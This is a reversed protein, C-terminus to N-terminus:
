KCLSHVIQFNILPKFHLKGTSPSFPFPPFPHHNPSQSPLTTLSHTIKSSDQFVFSDIGMFHCPYDEIQSLTKQRNRKMQSNVYNEDELSIYLLLYYYRPNLLPCEILHSKKDVKKSNPLLHTVIGRPFKCNKISLLSSISSKESELYM